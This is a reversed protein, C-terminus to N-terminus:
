NDQWVNVQNRVKVDLPCSSCDAINVDMDADESLSLVRVNMSGDENLPVTAFNVEGNGYAKPVLDVQKSVIFLLCLAIVTLVSKTYTDPKMIRTNPSLYRLKLIQACGKAISSLSETM